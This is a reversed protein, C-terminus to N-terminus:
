TIQVQVAEAVEDKLVGWVCVKKWGSQGGWQEVFVGTHEQTQHKTKDWKGPVKKGGSMCM